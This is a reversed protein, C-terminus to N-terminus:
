GVGELTKGFHEVGDSLVPEDVFAPPKDVLIHLVVLLGDGVEVLGSLYLGVVGLGEVESSDGLHLQPFESLAGVLVSDVVKQM